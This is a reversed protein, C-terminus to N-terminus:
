LPRACRYYHGVLHELNDICREDLSGYETALDKHQSPLLAIGDSADYILYVAPNDSMTWDYVVLQANRLSTPRGLQGIGLEVTLAIHIRTAIWTMPLWLAIALPVAAALSVARRFERRRAFVVAAVLLAIGAIFCVLAGLVVQPMPDDTPFEYVLSFGSVVAVFAAAPRWRWRDLQKDPAPSTEVSDGGQEATGGM